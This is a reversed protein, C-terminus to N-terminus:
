MTTEAGGSNGLPVRWFLFWLNGRGAYKANKHGTPLKGGDQKGAITNTNATHGTSM